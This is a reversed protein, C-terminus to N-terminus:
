RRWLTKLSFHTNDYQLTFADTDGWVMNTGYCVKVEVTQDDSTNKTIINQLESVATIFGTKCSVPIQVLNYVYPM